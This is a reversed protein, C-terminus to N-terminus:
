DGAGIRDRGEDEVLHIGADAAGRRDLDATSERAERLRGLDDRDRVERLDGRECRVMEGDDFGAVTGDGGRANAM